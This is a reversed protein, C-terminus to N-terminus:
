INRPSFSVFILFCSSPSLILLVWGQYVVQDQYVSMHLILATVFAASLSALAVASELKSSDCADLLLITSMESFFLIASPITQMVKERESFAMSVVNYVVLLTVIQWVQLSLRLMHFCEWSGFLRFYVVMTALQVIVFLWYLITIGVAEDDSLDTFTWVCNYVLGVVFM